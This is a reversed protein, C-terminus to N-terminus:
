MMHHRATVGNSGLNCVDGAAVAVFVLCPAFMVMV